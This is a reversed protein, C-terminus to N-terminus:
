TRRFLCADSFALVRVYFANISRIIPKSNGQLVTRLAGVIRASLPTNRYEAILYPIERDAVADLKGRRRVVELDGVALQSCDFADLFISPQAQFHVTTSRDFEIWVLM